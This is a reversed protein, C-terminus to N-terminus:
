GLKGRAHTQRFDCQPPLSWLAHDAAMPGNGDKRVGFGAILIHDPDDRLTSYLSSGVPGDVPRYKRVSESLDRLDSGDAKISRLAFSENGGADGGFVIRDRKWFAFDVNYDGPVFVISGQQKKIDYVAISTRAPHNRMLFVIRTGDQSLSPASIESERFFDELPIPAGFLAHSVPWLLACCFFRAVRLIKM